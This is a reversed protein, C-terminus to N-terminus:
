SACSGLRLSGRCRRAQSILAASEHMRLTPLKLDNTCHPLRSASEHLAAPKMQGARGVPSCPSPAAWKLHQPRGMEKSVVGTEAGVQSAPSTGRQQNRRGGRWRTLTRADAVCDWSPAIFPCIFTSHPVTPSCPAYHTLHAGPDSEGTPANRTAAIM